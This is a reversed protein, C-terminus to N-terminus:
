NTSNESYNMMRLGWGLTVLRVIMDDLEANFGKSQVVTSARGRVHSIVASRVAEDTHTLRLSRVQFIWAEFSTEDKPVPLDGSFYPLEPQKPSKTPPTPYVVTPTVLSSMIRPVVSEQSQAQQLEGVICAQSGVKDVLDALTTQQLRMMENTRELEKEMERCEAAM